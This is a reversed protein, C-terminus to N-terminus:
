DLRPLETQAADYLPFGPGLALQSYNETTEYIKRALGIRGLASVTVGVRAVRWDPVLRILKLCQVVPLTNVIYESLM